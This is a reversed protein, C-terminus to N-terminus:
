GIYDTDLGIPDFVPAQFTGDGNGLLIDFGYGNSRIGSTATIALDPKGDGNFDGVAAYVAGPFVAATAAPLFGSGPIAVVTQPLLASTSPADNGDGGYYANLSLNGPPLLVTTFEAQGGGLAEIALITTGNYFTVSGTATSPSVLATLTVPQGYEAVSASTTLTTTTSSAANLAGSIALLVSAFPKWPM